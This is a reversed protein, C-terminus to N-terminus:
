GILRVALFFGTVMMGVGAVCLFVGIGVATRVLQNVAEILRSAAELMPAIAVDSLLGKQGIQTSQVSLTRMTKQYDSALMTRLGMVCAVFGTLGLMGALVLATLETVEPM